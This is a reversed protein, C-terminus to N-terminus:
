KKECEDSKCRYAIARAVLVLGGAIMGQSGTQKGDGAAVAGVLIIIWGAIGSAIYGIKRLM